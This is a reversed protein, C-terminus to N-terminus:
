VKHTCRHKTWTHCACGACGARLLDVPYTLSPAHACALACCWVEFQRKLEHLPVVAFEVPAKADVSTTLQKMVEVVFVAGGRLVIVHHPLPCQMGRSTVTSLEDIGTGPIRCAGLMNSYQLMCQPRGGETVPTYQHSYLAHFLRAAAYAYRAGMEAQVCYPIFADLFIICM